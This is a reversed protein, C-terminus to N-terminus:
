GYMRVVASNADVTARCTPCHPSKALLSVACKNCMNNHGCPLLVADAVELCIICIPRAHCDPARRVGLADLDHNAICLRLAMLARRYAILQEAQATCLQHMMLHATTTTTDASDNSTRMTPLRTKRPSCTSSALRSLRIDTNAM